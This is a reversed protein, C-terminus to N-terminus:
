QIPPSVHFETNKTTPIELKRFFDSQRDPPHRHITIPM